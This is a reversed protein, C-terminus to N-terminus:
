SERHQRYRKLHYPIDIIIRQYGHKRRRYLLTFKLIWAIQNHLFNEWFQTTIFEPIIISALQGDNHREDEEDLFALLPEIISRYPSPRIAIPIDPFWSEWREKMKEGAGPEVEIYVATIQDTITRAFRIAEISGRHVSSVPMIVRVKPYPKLTPPVGKLSLNVALETYHAKIKKFGAVALAIVIFTVWAGHVFKSIAVIVLMAGTILAGIGNMFAKLQWFRGKVKIWHMILGIQSLTFAMFAGIAFLPVLAHSNAKFILLLIGTGISLFIIGNTLVLRDGLAVLQFPLYRDKALFSAVRPFGSFSTNAAVALVLLTSIQILYYIFTTGFLHRALASLITEGGVPTVSNIQTLSLTGLFLVAMLGAMIALTLGAKKSEPTKFAPVNDSIAEIGTLATSGSAFARMLLFWTVPQSALPPPVQNPHATGALLQYIGVAIMVLYCLVFFYVPFAMVSGTEKLGRLNLVTILLLLLLAVLVKYDWLLPFASALAAVGSSLSVAATLLYDFLLAGGTLLSAFGGLNEKAVVYSGGGSPYAQITQYYSLAVVALIGSILLGIPLTYSLGVSGAVALALYIEQNAYAISSLADPSFAALAKFINLKTHSTSDTPLPSGILFTYLKHFM